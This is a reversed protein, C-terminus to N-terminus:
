RENEVENVFSELKQLWDKEMTNIRIKQMNTKNWFIEYRESLDALQDRKIHEDGRLDFRRELEEANTNLWVYIFGLDACENDLEQIFVSEMEDKGRLYSYVAQSPFFRDLILTDKWTAMKLIKWYQNYIKPDESHTPKYLNKILFGDKFHKAIKEIATGKGALDVGEIILVVM